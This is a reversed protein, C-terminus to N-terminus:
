EGYITSVTLHFLLLLNILASIM